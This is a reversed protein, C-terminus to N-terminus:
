IREMVMLVYKKNQAFIIPDVTQINKNIKSDIIPLAKSVAYYIGPAKTKIKNIAFEKVPLGIQTAWHHVYAITPLIHPTIDEQFSIKFGYKTLMENFYLWNHGSKEGAKDIKFYDCAVWKGGQKLIKDILPISKELDLYQLSESTIVTGFNNLFKESDIDEFKSQLLQNKYKETIHKAQNIDPTLGIANFNNKNLIALLGGMGCGIDLVQNEKDTILEVLKEGYRYQAKYIMNISIDLPHIDKNDFYGYHLFDGPLIQHYLKLQADDFVRAVRKRNRQLKIVQFLHHPYIFRKLITSVINKKSGM